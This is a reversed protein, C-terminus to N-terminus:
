QERTLRVKLAISEVGVARGSEDVDFVFQGMPVNGFNNEDVEGWTWGPGLIWREPIPRTTFTTFGVRKRYEESATDRSHLENPLLRWDIDPKQAVFLDNYLDHGESTWATVRLASREDTTITLSSNTATDSYTGAFSHAAQKKAVADVAEVIPETILNPLLNRLTGAVSEAGVPDAAAFVTYGIGYDPILVLLTNYIYWDGGKTYVDVTRGLTELRYIEWPRGVGAHVDNVFSTPKMWRSTQAQTLLHSNLIARGIKVFDNTSAFNGGSPTFIGMSSDWGTITANDGPIMNRASDITSPVTYSTGTLNLADIIHEKYLQAFPKRELRSLIIGLLPYGM